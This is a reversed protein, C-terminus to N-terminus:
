STAQTQSQGRAVVGGIIGTALFAGFGVAGTTLAAQRWKPSAVAVALAVGGAVAMGLMAGQAAGWGPGCLAKVTSGSTACPPNTAAGYAAGLGAAFVLALAATPLTSASRKALM